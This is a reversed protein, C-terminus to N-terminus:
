QGYIAPPTVGHFISYESIVTQEGGINGWVMITYVGDGYKAILYELDAKM